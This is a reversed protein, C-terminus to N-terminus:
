GCGRGVVWGRCRWWGEGGCSCGEGALCRDLAAMFTSKNDLEQFGEGGCSCGEGALCRDLAAMFTSKNDLERFGEGGCSCGEGALCRDLAAMFTSKNDLERFGEADCTLPRCSEPLRALVQLDEEVTRPDLPVFLSVDHDEVIKVVTSVYGDPNKAPDPLYVFQDVSSSFSAGALYYAETEAMVVKFGEAKFLRGLHLAKGKAAALILICKGSPAAATTSSALTRATVAM